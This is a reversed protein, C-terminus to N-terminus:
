FVEKVSEMWRTWIGMTDDRAIERGCKSDEFEYVLYDYNTKSDDPNFDNLGVYDLRRVYEDLDVISDFKERCALKFQKHRMACTFVEYKKM